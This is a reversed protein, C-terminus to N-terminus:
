DGKVATSAVGDNLFHGISTGFKFDNLSKGKKVGACSLVELLICLVSLLATVPGDLISNAPMDTHM